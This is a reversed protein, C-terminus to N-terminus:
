SRGSINLNSFNIDEENIEEYTLSSCIICANEQINNLSEKCMKTEQVYIFAIVIYGILLFLVVMEMFTPKKFLNKWNHLGKKEIYPGYKNEYWVLRKTLEPNDM